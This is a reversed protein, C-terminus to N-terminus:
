ECKLTQLLKQLRVPENTTIYDVGMNIFTLMDDEEDVTWVNVTMGLDHAQKVFASHSAMTSMTYDLGMIGDDYLQQPTLGGSLYAVTAGPNNELIRLCVEYSFSIYEVLDEVHAARVKAVSSDAVRNNRETTAHGKIELILKTAPSQKGQELYDELTPINEGNSLKVNKLEDYTSTEIIRGGISPDHCLVVVGDTTIWVDFESGYVGIEQAKQLAAISNQASGSPTWHGRHAIVQTTYPTTDFATFRAFGLAYTENGRVLALRYRGSVFDAPVTIKISSQAVTGACTFTQNADDVLSLKIIDGSAYGGGNLMYNGGRTVNIEPFYSLNSISIKCPEPQQSEVEKWLAQVQQESVPDAYIRAIAVDGKWAAQAPTGADAGIGFWQANSTPLIFEGAADAEAKLEGNIYIYAKEEEKNWVGVVHYYQGAQPVVGSKTWVWQSAGTASVNTLFTIQNDNSIMLATGGNETSSLLKIERSRPEFDAMCLAELSYGDALEDKIHQNVAYTTRYYGNSASVGPSHHFRAAYRRYAENFYTHMMGGALTAVTNHMPSVDEATGDNKFVVDLLDAVAPEDPPNPIEINVPKGSECAAVGFSLVISLLFASM